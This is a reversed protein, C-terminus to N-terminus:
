SIIDVFDGSMAVQQLADIEIPTHSVVGTLQKHSWVDENLPAINFDGVIITKSVRKKIFNNKMEQLFDLKHAFKENEDRDAVDGGAPVYFNQIEVGNTLRAFM